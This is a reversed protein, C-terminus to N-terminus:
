RGVQARAAGSTVPEEAPDRLDIVAPAEATVVLDTTVGDPGYVGSRKFVVLFAKALIRMDLWFTWNDVYWVDLEIRESWPLTNRGHIWAWGAMGPRVELRRRQFDNCRAMQDPTAARPGVISMDGMVVNFLQPIEDFTWTRLFRGVKTIRWDDQAVERGLGLDAAGDVMTRFKYMPFVRGDRGVRMDKFLVPGRSTLRVALAMLLVFPSLVILVSLSLLVDFGRKLFADLSEKM